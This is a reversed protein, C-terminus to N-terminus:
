ERQEHVRTAPDLAVVRGLEEYGQEVTLRHAGVGRPLQNMIRLPMANVHPRDIDAVAVNIGLKLARLRDTKTQVQDLAQAHFGRLADHGGALLGGKVAHGVQSQAGAQAAKGQLLQSGGIGKAAEAAVAALLDPLGCSPARAGPEQLLGGDALWGKLQEFGRLAFFNEPVVRSEPKAQATMRQRQQSRGELFMPYERGGLQIGQGMAPEDNRAPQDGGTLARGGSRAGGEDGQFVFGAHHLDDAPFLDPLGLALGQEVCPEHHDFAHPLTFAFHTVQDGPVQAVEGGPEALQGCM